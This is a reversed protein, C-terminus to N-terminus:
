SEDKWARVTAFTALGPQVPRGAHQAAAVTVSPEDFRLFPNTALETGLNVPLTPKGRSRLDRAEARRKHLAPNDPEVTLAFELNALTYEHACYILTDPPLAKIRSLSAHMQAPTGEFLRGCGCSFLTDGCFLAGVGVYCLHGLTHGPTAIVRFVLGLEAISVTEGGELPCTRGPIAELAPAYVPIAHRATLELIGGVHDAHHHTVLIAVPRLQRAELWALIPASEGPDVLIAAQDDHIAWVYNDRFAPIATVKM